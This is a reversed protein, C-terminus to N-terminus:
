MAGTMEGTVPATVSLPSYILFFPTKLDLVYTLITTAM